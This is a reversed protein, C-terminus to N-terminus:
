VHARGIELGGFTLLPAACIRVANYGREVTEAFAADLDAYPEGAGARTYWSFDWLSITLREPLHAPTM